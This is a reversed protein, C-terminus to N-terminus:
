KLLWLSIATSWEISITHIYSISPECLSPPILVRQMSHPFLFYLWLDVVKSTITKIPVSKFISLTCSICNETLFNNLFHSCIQQKRHIQKSKSFFTFSLTFSLTFSWRIHLRFDGQDTLVHSIQTAKRYWQYGLFNGAKSCWNVVKPNAWDENSKM